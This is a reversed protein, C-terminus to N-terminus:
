ICGRGGGGGGEGVRGWGGGEAVGRGLMNKIYCMFYIMGKFNAKKLILSIPNGIKGLNSLPDLDKIKM